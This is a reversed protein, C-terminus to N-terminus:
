TVAPSPECSPTSACGSPASPVGCATIRRPLPVMILRLAAAAAAGDSDCALLPVAVKLKSPSDTCATTLAIRPSM